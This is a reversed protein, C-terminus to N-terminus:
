NDQVYDLYRVLAKIELAQNEEQERQEFRIM